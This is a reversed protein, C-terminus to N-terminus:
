SRRRRASARQRTGDRRQRRSRRSSPPSPPSDAAPDCAPRPDLEPPNGHGIARVLEGLADILPPLEDCWRQLADADADLPAALESLERLPPTLSTRAYTWQGVGWHRILHDAVMVVRAAPSPAPAHHGAVAAVPRTPLQWARLVAASVLGHDVGTFRRETAPTAPADEPLAPLRRDLLLKGVDHFLGAVMAEEAGLPASAGLRVVLRRAALGVALSHLWFGQGPYRYRLFRHRMLDRTCAAYVLRSLPQLGIVVCAEAVGSVPRQLGAFASNAQRLVWGRLTPDLDLAAAFDTASATDRGADQLFRDVVRSFRPLTAIEPALQRALSAVDAPWPTALPESVPLGRVPQGAM